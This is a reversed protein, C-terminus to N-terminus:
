ASPPQWVQGPRLIPFREAPINARALAATLRKPPDDIAEDTLQFTGWHHALAHQAGCLQFVRVAEDPDIHNVKMFWRPEYAGIPIIALRFDGHKARAKAFLEGPGFGTDAIHYIKGSPTEIVFACWLAMRRDFLGRASWHYIPEFHVAAGPAIEVRESWDHASVRSAPVDDRMIADNGLPTLVRAKPHNQALRRLAALDLHDYHNHSVLVVDIPPLDEFAIGPPNVRPPGAWQVPSARQSWVPDILINLDHTQLLFSAHGVYSVRLAAGSVRAPPKDRFPSPYDAPWQARNSEMRWKLLDSRSKDSNFGEVFFREGDFHDSKPGSYYPNGSPRLALFGAGAAVPVGFVTFFRRRTLLAM